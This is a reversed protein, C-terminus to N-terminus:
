DGNNACNITINKKGWNPLVFTASTNSIQESPLIHHVNLNPDYIGLRQSFFCRGESSVNFWPGSDRHDNFIGHCKEYLTPTYGRHGPWIGVVPGQWDHGGLFDGDVQNARWSERREVQLQHTTLTSTGNDQPLQQVMWSSAACQHHCVNM